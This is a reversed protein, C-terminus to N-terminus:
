FHNKTAHKSHPLYEVTLVSALKGYVNYDQYPGMERIISLRSEMKNHGQRESNLLPPALYQELDWSQDEVQMNACTCMHARHWAFTCLCVCAYVVCACMFLKLTHSLLM